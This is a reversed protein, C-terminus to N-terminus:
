RHDGAAPPSAGNEDGTVDEAIGAWRGDPLWVEVQPNAVINLYWDAGKGFAATCYIDGDVSAYNM